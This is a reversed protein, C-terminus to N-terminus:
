VKHTENAKNNYLVLCDLCNARCIPDEYSDHGRIWDLREQRVNSGIKGIPNGGERLHIVCPFHYSSACVMDDLAVWCKKCDTEKMGRVPIGNKINNIRYNLIKHKDLIEKPLDALKTLAKNYQASPIVRIDSCGLSDAFAVTDICTDVNQETFVIGASVYVKQALYKINEVVQQWKKSGGSMIEGVACCASDLSTSFDNVGADILEDYLKQSASGNTSIAIHEVNNDKCVSVLDKLYPLLTCEGGSFRINKLGEKCWISIVSLAEIFSMTGQAARPLTRCYLCKFNCRDTLIMECRYLPSTISSTKARADSLTYFGIDELKMKKKKWWTRRWCLEM